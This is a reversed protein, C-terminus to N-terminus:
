WVTVGGDCPDMPSRTLNLLSSLNNDMCFSEHDFGQFMKRLIYSEATASSAEISRVAAAMDWHEDHMLWFLLSTFSKSAEFGGLDDAYQLM